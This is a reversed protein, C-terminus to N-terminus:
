SHRSGKNQPSPVMLIEIMNNSRPIVALQGGWGVGFVEIRDGLHRIEFRTVEDVSFSVVECGNQHEVKVRTSDGITRSELSDLSAAIERM